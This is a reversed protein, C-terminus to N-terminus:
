CGRVLLLCPTTIRCVRTTCFSGGKDIQLMGAVFAAMSTPDYRNAALWSSIGRHAPWEWEITFTGNEDNIKLPKTTPTPSLVMFFVM